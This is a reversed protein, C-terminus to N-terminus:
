RCVIMGRHLKNGFYALASGTGTVRSLQLFLPDTKKFAASWNRPAAVHTLSGACHDRTDCDPKFVPKASPLRSAKVRVALRAFAKVKSQLAEM